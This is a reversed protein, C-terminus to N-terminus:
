LQFLSTKGKEESFLAHPQLNDCRSARRLPTKARPDATGDEGGQAVELLHPDRLLLVLLAALVENFSFTGSGAESTRDEVAMEAGAHFSKEQKRIL